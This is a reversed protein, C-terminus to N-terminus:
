CAYPIYDVFTKTEHYNYDYRVQDPYMKWRVTAETQIELKDERGNSSITILIMDGGVSILTSIVIM